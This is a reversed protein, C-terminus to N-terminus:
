PAVTVAVTATRTQNAADRVTITASGAAVRTITVVNAAVAVTAVGTNSSVVEYTGSGNNILVQGAAAGAMSLVLTGPTVGFAGQGVTVAITASRNQDAKDRVTITASGATLGTVTVVNGNVTATAVGGNSSLVEYAGSGNNILAQATASAPLTLALTGPTVGFAGLGCALGNDAVTVATSAIARNADVVTVTVTQNGNVCRSGNSGTNLTFGTFAGCTAGIPALLGPNDSFLCVNGVAGFITFNIVQNDNESITIANPSVRITPSGAVVTVKVKASQNASDLVTVDIGESVLKGVVILEDGVVSADLAAPIGQNVRYPAQGGTIKTITSMGVFIQYDSAALQLPPVGVTLAVQLTAGAGDRINVTTTGLAVGTVTWQTGSVQVVSAIGGDAGTVTYPAAGGGVSFTRAAGAGVGVTLASPATTYLPKSSGVKVAISVSRANYDLVQVTTDGGGVAGIVLQDASVAAVAITPDPNVVRYPANGGTITYTGSGGVPIVVNTGATTTLTIQNPNTGSSGGGGGCAALLTTAVLSLIGILKRM